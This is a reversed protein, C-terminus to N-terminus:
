YGAAQAMTCAGMVVAFLLARLVKMIKPNENVIRIIIMQIVSELSLHLM